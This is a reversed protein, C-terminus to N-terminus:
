YKKYRIQFTKDYIYVYQSYGYNNIVIEKGPESDLDQPGDIHWAGRIRYGRHSYDRLDYINFHEHRVIGLEVGPDGDTDYNGNIFWSRPGMYFSTKTRERDRIFVLHQQHVVGIEVGPEGDADYHGNIAWDTGM